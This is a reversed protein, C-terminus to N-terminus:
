IKLIEKKLDEINRIERFKVFVNLFVIEKWINGIYKYSSSLTKSNSLVHVLYKWQVCTLHHFFSNLHVGTKITKLFM